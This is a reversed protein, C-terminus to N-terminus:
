VMLTATSQHLVRSNSDLLALKLPGVPLTSPPNTIGQIQIDKLNPLSSINRVEIVKRQNTGIQKSVVTCNLPLKCNVNSDLDVLLSFSYASMEVTLVDGQVIPVSNVANVILSGPESTVNSALTIYTNDSLFDVPTDIVPNIQLSEDIIQKLVLSSVKIPTSMKGSFRPGREFLKQIEIQVLTMAPTNQNLDITLILEDGTANVVKCPQYM